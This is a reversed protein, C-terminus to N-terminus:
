DPSADRTLLWASLDALASPDLDAAVAHPDTADRGALVAALDPASGDHRYPASAWLDRLTPTDVTLLPGEGLRQGSSEPLAGVAHRTPEGEVIGSDTYASAAHCSACDLRAFVAAGAEADASLAGEPTRWPSRGFRALGTVYAALADLDPSLGAKPTGLSRDHGDAFFDADDMLGTGGFPGRLDHEFDQVEDFNASWHLPGHGIGARGRMSITNRLGEGRDTFDWVIRDSDGDLHCHACAIYGDQSLRPDASDNFLVKGRHVVPDLPESDVLPLSVPRAESDSFADLAYIHLARDLSADLVLRDGVVAVGEVALGTATLTGAQTGDLRDLREVTRSGRTAVYLYDGRASWAAASAFGRGDFQVRAEFREAGQALDVFSTVARLTRDFDLDQGNLYRGHFRNAQLSPVALTRADPSVVLTDLYGPVGGIETDNAVQPDVALPWVTASGDLVSPEADAAVVPATAPDVVYIEAGEPGSRWRSGALRGDPLRAIGRLDTGAAFAREVAWGGAGDAAVEAILGTGQLGVWFSNPGASGVVGFPAAGYRLQLAGRAAGDTAAHFVVQDLHPCSVALLAGDASEAVTRPGECTPVQWRVAPAAGTVTARTLTAGDTSVAVVDTAPSGVPAGGHLAVVSASHTARWVVPWTVTVLTVATRRAGDADYATVTARYRGPMAYRVEVTPDPGAEAQGRGDGFDWRWAVAGTSASADLRVVADVDAAQAPGANATLAVAMDPRPGRDDLPGGDTEPGVDAGLDAAADGPRADVAGTDELGRDAADAGADDDCSALTLSLLLLAGARGRM